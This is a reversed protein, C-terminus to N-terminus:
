KEFRNANGNQASQHINAPLHHAITVDYVGVDGGRVGAKERRVSAASRRGNRKEGSDDEAPVLKDEDDSFANKLFLKVQFYSM